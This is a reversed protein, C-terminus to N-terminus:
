LGSTWSSVLVRFGIFWYRFGPVSRDRHACRLDSGGSIFAGGRCVRPEDPGAALNEDGQNEWLSRTWEWSNGAMDLCGYPSGGLPFCGVASTSGVNTAVYNAREPDPEAGWPYQREPDPNPVRGPPPEDDGLKEVARIVPDVPLEIGGRAAKEWEAESPLRVEHPSQRQGRLHERLWRTYALAEYWTIGVVPHNPLTFPVGFDHPRARAVDGWRGQVEGSPKWMGHQRAETWYRPEHYGGADVFHKFQANTVPYRGIWYGYDLSENLEAEKGVGMWFAGPPVWCVEMADVGTVGARPDGIRALVRGAEAREVPGLAGAELLEVLRACVREALDRGLASKQARNLGMELLVEGAFRAGQWIRETVELRAPCLEAVLELPKATEGSQYVLRGVALLMVERWHTAQEVFGAARRAFDPQISLYAGALYEQFTRNPFTYVGPAHEVLLGARMCLAQMVEHAWDHSRDPHLETLARELRAESINAVAECGTFAGEAHIDYALRWLTHKLDLAALGARNLLVRLRDPEDGARIKVQEWRWLLLDVAAEYLPARADPIEGEHTHMLAMVTLLLPNTALRWLDRHLVADQLNRTVTATAGAKIAGLRALEQHWAAIFRDVQERNFAALGIPEFGGLRWSPDQYALTRCTVVIRSRPFRDAFAEVAERVFIRQRPDGIEDLGDLFVIAQGKELKEELPGAAFSLNQEGLRAVIFDWLRRPTARATGASSAVTFDRLVVTLPVLQSEAPPWGRLRDLWGHAPDLRHLALAQAFNTIFTSKGSGPDGLLVMRRYSAAAELASLTRPEEPSEKNEHRGRVPRAEQAAAQRTTLLDVYVQMLDFRTPQGTPDSAGVDLGRLSLHRSSEVLVRSYIRLAEEPDRPPIGAIAVGGEGAAAGPGQAVAGSGIVTAHAGATLLGASELLDLLARGAQALKRDNGAAAATLEEVLATKRGESDPKQELFRIAADVEAKSAVKRLVLAKIREYADKVGPGAAENKAAVAGSALATVVRMISEMLVGHNTERQGDSTTASLAKIQTDVWIDTFVRKYIRNRPRLVGGPIVKVLGSLKLAAQLPSREDHDVLEGTCIRRYLALLAGRLDRDEM